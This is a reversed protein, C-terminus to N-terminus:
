EFRDTDQHSVLWKKAMEKTIKPNARTNIVLFKFNTDMDRVTRWARRIRGLGVLWRSREKKFSNIRLFSEKELSDM